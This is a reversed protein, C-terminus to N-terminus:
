RQPLADRSSPGRLTVACLASAFLCNQELATVFVFYRHHFKTAFFRQIWNPDNSVPYKRKMAIRCSKGAMVGTLGSVVHPGKIRTIAIV